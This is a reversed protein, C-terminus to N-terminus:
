PGPLVGRADGHRSHQHDLRQRGRQTLRAKPHSEM